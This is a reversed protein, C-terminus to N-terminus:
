SMSPVVWCWRQDMLQKSLLVVLGLSHVGDLSYNIHKCKERDGCFGNRKGVVAYIYIHIYAHHITHKQDGM